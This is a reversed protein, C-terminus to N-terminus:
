NTYKAARVAPINPLPQVHHGGSNAFVTVPIEKLPTYRLQYGPNSTVRLSYNFPDAFRFEEAGRYPRLPVHAHSCLLEGGRAYLAGVEEVTPMVFSIEVLNHLQPLRLGRAYFSPQDTEHRAFHGLKTSNETHWYGIAPATHTPQVYVYDPTDTDPYVQWGIAEFFGYLRQTVEPQRPIALEAMLANNFIGAM